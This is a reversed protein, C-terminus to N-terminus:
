LNLVQREEATLGAKYGELKRKGEGTVTVGDGTVTVYGVLELEGM